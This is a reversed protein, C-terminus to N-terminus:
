DVQFEFCIVEEQLDVRLRPMLNLAAGLPDAQRAGTDDLYSLVGVCLHRRRERLRWAALLRRVTGAGGDDIVIVSSYSADSALAGENLESWRLDLDVLRHEMAPGDARPSELVLISTM